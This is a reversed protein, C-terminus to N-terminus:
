FKWEALAQSGPAYVLTGHKDPVDITVTGKIKEGPTLDGHNLSDGITVVADDYHTGDDGRVYFDYPNLSTGIIAKAAVTFVAFYKREPKSGFEGPEKTYFKPASVTMTMADQGDQTVTATAGFRFQAPGAPATDQPLPADGCLEHGPNAYCFQGPNAQWDAYDQQEQGSSQPAESAKVEKGGGFVDDLAKGYFAQSALVGAFALVSLIVGAIAMGKGARKGKRAGLWAIVGFVVGVLALVAAFNNVIPIFALLLSVLGIVLSTIAFAPGRQRTEPSPSETPATM